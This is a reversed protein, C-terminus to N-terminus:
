QLPEHLENRHSRFSDAGPRGSRISWIIVRDDNERGREGEESGKTRMKEEDFKSMVLKGHKAPHFHVFSCVFTINPCAQKTKTKSYDDVPYNYWCIQKATVLRANGLCTCFTFLLPLWTGLLTKYVAPLYRVMVFVAISASRSSTSEVGYGSYPQAPKCAPQCLTQDCKGFHHM